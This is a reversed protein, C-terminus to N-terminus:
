ADAAPGREELGIELGEIRGFHGINNTLLRLEHCLCTAALLLDFNDLLQGKRRLRARQEGFVRAVDHGLDLVTVGALFDALGAMAESPDNSGFVGEYLEALSIISVFLSGPPLGHLAATVRPVGALYDIVWDTDVLYLTM